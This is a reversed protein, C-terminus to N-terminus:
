VENKHTKLVTKHHYDPNQAMGNITMTPFAVVVENGNQDDTASYAVKFGGKGLLSLNSYSGKQGHVTDGNRDPEDM